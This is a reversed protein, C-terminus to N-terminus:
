IRGHLDAKRGVGRRSSNSRKNNWGAVAVAKSAASERERYYIGGQLFLLLTRAEERLTAREHIGAESRAIAMYCHHRNKSIAVGM